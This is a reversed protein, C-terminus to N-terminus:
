AAPSVPFPGLQGEPLAPDLDNVRHGLVVDVLMEFLMPPLNLMAEITIPAPQGNATVNWEAVRSKRGDEGFFINGFHKKLEADTTAAVGMRGFRRRELSSCPRYAFRFDGWAGPVAALFGKYYQGDQILEVSM